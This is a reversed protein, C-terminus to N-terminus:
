MGGALIKYVGNNKLHQGRPGVRKMANAADDIGILAMPVRQPLNDIPAM